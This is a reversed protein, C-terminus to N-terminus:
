VRTEAYILKAEKKVINKFLTKEGSLDILDVNKPMAIFLEGYFKFFIGEPYDDIAFDYDNVESPKNNLISGVLYVKGIKYKKALKIVENLEKKTLM